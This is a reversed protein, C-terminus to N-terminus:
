FNLRRMYRRVTRYHHWRNVGYVIAAFLAVTLVATVYVTLVSQAITEYTTPM